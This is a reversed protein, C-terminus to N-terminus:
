KTSFLKHLKSTEPDAASIRGNNMPWTHKLSDGISVNDIPSHVFLRKPTRKRGVVESSILQSSAAREAM